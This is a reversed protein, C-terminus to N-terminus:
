FYNIQLLKTPLSPISGRGSWCECAALINKIEVFCPTLCIIWALNDNEVRSGAKSIIVSTSIMRMMLLFYPGFFCLGFRILHRRESLSGMLRSEPWLASRILPINWLYNPFPFFVCNFTRTHWVGHINQCQQLFYYYDVKKGYAINIDNMNARTISFPIIHSM